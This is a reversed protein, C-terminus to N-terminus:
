RCEVGRWVGGGIKRRAGADGPCADPRPAARGRDGSGSGCVHPAPGPAAQPPPLEYKYRRPSSGARPQRRSVGALRQRPRPTLTAPTQGPLSVGGGCGGALGCRQPGTDGPARKSGSESHGPQGPLPCLGRAPPSAGRKRQCCGKPKARIKSPKRQRSGRLTGPHQAEGKEWRRAALHWAVRTITFGGSLRSLLSLRRQNRKKGLRYKWSTERSGKPGTERGQPAPLQSAMPVARRGLFSFNLCYVPKPGTAPFKGSGLAAQDRAPGHGKGQPETDREQPQIYTLRSHSSTLSTGQGVHSSRRTIQPTLRPTLRPLQGAALWTGATVASPTGM